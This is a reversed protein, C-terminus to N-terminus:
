QGQVARLFPDPLDKTVSKRAEQRYLSGTPQGLGAAAQTSIYLFSSRAGLYMDDLPYRTGGAVSHDYARRLAGERDGGEVAPLAAAAVPPPPPAPAEVQVKLDVSRVNGALDTLQLVIAHDGPKLSSAEVAVLFHDKSESLAVAQDEGDVKVALSKLPKGATFEYRGPKLESAPAGAAPLVVVSGDKANKATLPLPARDLKLVVKAETATGFSDTAKIGLAHDGDALATLMAATLTIEKPPTPEKGPEPKPLVQATVAKGDVIVDWTAVDRDATAKLDTPANTLWVPDPHSLTIVIPRAPKRKFALMGDIIAVNGAKDTAKFKIPTPADKLAAADIALPATLGDAALTLSFVKGEYDAEASVLQKTWKLVLPSGEVLTLGGVAIAPDLAPPKRDVTFAVSQSLAGAATGRVTLKHPGDALDAPLAAGSAIQLPKDDLLAEVSASPPDFTFEVKGQALVQGEVPVVIKIASPGPGEGRLEKMRDPPLAQPPTPKAGKAVSTSFGAPVDVENAGSADGVGVKGEVVSVETNADSALAEFDTGKVGITATTTKVQLSGPIKPSILARVKGFISFVYAPLVNKAAFTEVKFRAEGTLAIKDKSDLQVEAKQGAPVLLEDGEMVPIRKGTLKADQGYRKVTMKEDSPLVFGVRKYPGPVDFGAVASWTAAHTASEPTAEVKPGAPDLAITQGAAVPIPGAPPAAPKPAAADLKAAASDPKAEEAKPTATASTAAELKAVPAPLTVSGALVTITAPTKWGDFFLHADTADLAVGNITLHLPEADKGGEKGGHILLHVPGTLAYGSSGADKATHYLTAGAALTAAERSSISVAAVIKPPTKLIEVQHKSDLADGAQLTESAPFTEEEPPLAKAEGKEAQLKLDGVRYLVRGSADAAQTIGGGTLLLACVAVAATVALARWAAHEATYPRVAGVPGGRLKLEM